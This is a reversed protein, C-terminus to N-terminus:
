VGRAADAGGKLFELRRLANINRFSVGETRTAGVAREDQNVGLGSVFMSRRHGKRRLIPTTCQGEPETREGSGASAAGGTHTDLPLAHLFDSV